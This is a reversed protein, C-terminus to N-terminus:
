KDSKGADDNKKAEKPVEGAVTFEVDEKLQALKIDNANYADIKLRYKGPTLSKEIKFSEGEAKQNIYPSVVSSEDPYLGFKYYAANEYQEWKIELDAADVKVNSKPDVAKLDSKFLNTAPAFFTKDAEIKYKASTIGFSQTAFIYMPTDFVRALLGAYEGPEINKFLYEGKDDTKTKFEDGSCGSFTNFKACLKVEVGPAPKENFLVKGQINAKGAEPTEKATGEQSVVYGDKVKTTEPTESKTETNTGSPNEGTEPPQTSQCAGIFLACIGLFLVCLNKM